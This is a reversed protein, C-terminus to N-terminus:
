GSMSSHKRIVSQQSPVPWLDLVWPTDDIAIYTCEWCGDCQRRESFTPIPVTIDVKLMTTASYKKRLPVPTVPAPITVLKEVSSEVGLASKM